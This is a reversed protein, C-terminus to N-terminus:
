WPMNNNNGKADRSPCCRGVDGGRRKGSLSHRIRRHSFCTSKPGEKIETRWQLGRENAIISVRRLKVGGEPWPSFGEEVAMKVKGGLFLQTQKAKEEPPPPGPIKGVV